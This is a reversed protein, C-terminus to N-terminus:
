HGTASATEQVGLQYGRDFADINMDVFRQPVSNRIQDTLAKPDCIGSCSILAGLSVINVARITGAALAEKILPLMLCKEADTPPETVRESDAIVLTDSQIFGRSAPVAIQDLIVLYDLKAVLPYATEGSDSVVLDARSLGGRSTPEYGQSIAVYRQEASLREGLIKAALQLGQGGSGSFRIEIGSM